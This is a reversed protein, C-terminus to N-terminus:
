AKGASGYVFMKQKVVDRVAIKAAQLIDTELGCGVFSHPDNSSDTIGIKKKLADFFVKRLVSGVQIKSIGHEIAERIAKDAVGSGGHLVLPISVEKKIADLCDIDLGTKGSGIAHINGLAVGLADIGTEEVFKRAQIPDTLVPRPSSLMNGGKTIPLADLEQEVAVNKKHAMAVTQSTKEEQEEYDCNEDSFAVVNFGLDIAKKISELCPSENFIFATPVSASRCMELGMAACPELIDQPMVKPDGSFGLIVPSRTEEAAEWVAQLSELNWSEFYGVAFKRSEAEKLIEQLPVLSM